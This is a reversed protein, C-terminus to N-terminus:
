NPRSVEYTGKDDIFTVTVKKFSGDVTISCEFSEGSKVKQDAPCSVGSVNTAGYSESVIQRVGDQAANQDLTDGGLGGSLFLGGVVLAIVIVLGGIVFLPVKSKSGSPGPQQGYPNQGYQGQPYQGQPYQQNQGYQGAYPQAAGQPYQGQPYGQGAPYQQTPQGQQYEGQPYNGQPYQGQGYPNQQGQPYQGQPYQGQPNQGGPVPQGGPYQQGAPYQGQPYGPQPYQGQPYDGQPYGYPAQPGPTTGTPDSQGWAQQDAAKSEGPAVEGSPQQRSWQDDPDTPGYPGSM